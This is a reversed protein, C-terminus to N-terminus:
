NARAPWNAASNGQRASLTSISTGPCTSGVRAVELSIGDYSRPNLNILLLEGDRAVFEAEFIGHFEISALLAGHDGALRSDVEASEFCYGSSFRLPYQLLKVHAAFM